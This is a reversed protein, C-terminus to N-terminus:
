LLIESSVLTPNFPVPDEDAFASAKMQKKQDVNQESWTQIDASFNYLIENLNICILVNCKIMM